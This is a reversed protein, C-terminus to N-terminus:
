LFRSGIIATEGDHVFSVSYRARSVGVYLEALVGSVYEYNGTRLWNTGKKHPFILVRDFTMGKSEGFNLAPLGLCDTTVKLRLVQPQFAEVYASVSSAKVFFIGDHGTSKENRSKTREHLPYFSDALDAIKQNCRHTDVHHELVALRKKEWDKFKHVIDPGRFKKHRSSNNTSYTSQRPDGVLVVELKSRLMAEIIDIDYGAVDQIEDIYVREFRQELRRIVAGSSASNCAEVFEALKNSYISSTGGLYYRDPDDKRAFRDLTTEVWRIGDIRRDIKTDQYPRAMERLLFTYWSLIEVNEPIIRARQHFKSQIEHVNNRTYTIIAARKEPLALVEDVIRTTKGGGAAAIVIRNNSPM